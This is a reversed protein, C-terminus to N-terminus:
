NNGQSGPREVKNKDVGLIAPEINQYLSETENDNDNQSTCAATLAMILVGFFVLVRKM